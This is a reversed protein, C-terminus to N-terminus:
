DFVQEVGLVVDPATIPAMSPRASSPAFTSAAAPANTPPTSPVITPGFTPDVTPNAIPSVTQAVSPVATPTLTPGATPDRTPALTPLASPSDTPTLTPTLSPANPDNTPAESPPLTPTLTPRLTPARSPRFTPSAIPKNTPKATPRSTPRRTPAKSFPYIPGEVLYAAGTVSGSNTTFTPTGVLIDPDNDGYIDFGGSLSGPAVNDFLAIGDEYTRLSLFPVPFDTKGFIVYVVSKDAVLFDNFGDHNLDGARSLAVGLNGNITMGSITFGETAAMPNSVTIHSTRSTAAGFVVYVIGADPFYENLDAGTAGILVDAWGDGNIDGAGCVSTGLEEGSKQTVFRTGVAYTSISGMNRSALTRSGYIMHAVGTGWEKYAGVLIDQIGDGNFDGPCDIANGFNGGSAAGGFLIGATGLSNLDLNTPATTKGYIMWVGGASARSSYTLSPASILYDDISDGNMDGLPSMALKGEGLKAGAAPGFITFGTTASPTFSSLIIDTYASTSALGFIVYIAGANAKNTPDAFPAGILVDDFGDQNVDGAPGLSTGCKDGSAAGVIRRMTHDSAVSSLDVESLTITNGLVIVVMGCETKSNVTMAPASIAFDQKGDNNYDGIMSVVTGVASNAAGTFQSGGNAALYTKLSLPTFRGSVSSFLFALAVIALLPAFM